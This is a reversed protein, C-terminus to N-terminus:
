TSSSRPCFAYRNPHLVVIDFMALKDMLDMNMTWEEIPKLIDEGNEHKDGTKTNLYFSNGYYLVFKSDSTVGPMPGRGVHLTDDAQAFRSFHEDYDGDRSLSYEFEALLLLLLLLLALKSMTTM